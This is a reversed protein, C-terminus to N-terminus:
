SPLQLSVAVPPALPPAHPLLPLEPVTVTPIAVSPRPEAIPDASRDNSQPAPAEAQVRTPARPPQPTPPPPSGVNRPAPSTTSGTAPRRPHPRTQSRHRRPGPSAQPLKQVPGPVTDAHKPILVVSAHRASGGVDLAVPSPSGAGFLVVAGYLVASAATASLVLRVEGSPNHTALGM